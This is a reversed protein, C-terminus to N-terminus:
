SATILLKRANKRNKTTLNVRRSGSGHLDPDPDVARIIVRFLAVTCSVAFDSELHSHCQSSKKRAFYFGFEIM